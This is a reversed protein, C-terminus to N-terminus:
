ASLCQTSSVGLPRTRATSAGCLLTERVTATRSPPTSVFHQRRFFGRFFGPTPTPLPPALPRPPLFPAPNSPTDTRVLNKNGICNTQASAEYAEPPSPPPPTPSPPPLPAPPASPPAYEGTLPVPNPTCCPTALTAQAGVVPAADARVFATSARLLASAQTRAKRSPAPSSSATRPSRRSRPWLKTAFAWIRRPPLALRPRVRPITGNGCKLADRLPSTRQARRTRTRINHM